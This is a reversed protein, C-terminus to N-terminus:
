SSNAKELEEKLKDKIEKLKQIITFKHSKSSNIRKIIPHKDVRFYEIFKIKSENEENPNVKEKCYIVYKPLDSQMLGDPLPIATSRRERKDNNPLNQPVIIPIIDDINNQPINNNNNIFKGNVLKTKSRCNNCTKFSTTTKEFCGREWNSCIIQGSDTLKKWKSYGQHKKCYECDDTLITKCQTNEKTIALCQNGSLIRKNKRKENSIKQRERCKLCQKNNLNPKFSNKCGSCIIPNDIDQSPNPNSQNALQESLENILPYLIPLTIPLKLSNITDDVVINKKSM